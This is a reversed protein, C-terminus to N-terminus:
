QELLFLLQRMELRGSRWRVASMFASGGMRNSVTETAIAMAPQALKESASRDHLQFREPAAGLSNLLSTARHSEWAEAAAADAGVASVFGPVEAQRVAIFCCTDNNSAHM